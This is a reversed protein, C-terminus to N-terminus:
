ESSFRAIVEEVIERKTSNLSEEFDTIRTEVVNLTAANIPNGNVFSYVGDSGDKGLIMQGLIASGLLSGDDNSSVFYYDEYIMNTSNRILNRAGVRIESVEKKVAVSISDTTMNIASDVEEKTYYDGMAETITDGVKLSIRNDIVTLLENGDKDYINLQGGIILEGIITKANLGYTTTGDGLIIQGLAIECAEWADDTFVISNNVIKVQRPDYTGDELLQKGTYGSGDIVVEQNKSALAAGMSLDRSTQIAEKMKDFEGSKIPYIIDKIYSITNASKSINGLVDDYLSKPDFKNFRNGFTMKLTHDDYNITMNSLFLAAIDNLDLEVNILCGTELQESWEEFEKIFIFNEVDVSFERTPQSTRHLQSLARSYLTRMQEFKEEYTMVDTFVVYDDQYNGEFIYHCLEEYESSTFYSKLNLRSHVSETRVRISEADSEAAKLLTTNREKEQKCEEIRADIEDLTADISKDTSIQDGGSETIAENYEGVLATSNEAVINNRCRTYMTIQEDLRENEMQLNSAETLKSYYDQNLDCYSEFENEVDEQWAVVKSRLSESMWDLYYTFDYIVSTGIPNVAAITINDDGRVSVATYLDDANETIDLSNILDEKTIHINTLRVYNAQDYVSITRDIIDFVFICEFADQMNQIMFSLCNTSVDIDEFTRWREAVVSDVHKITWLPITEVITELLGKNEDLGDTTFRYTGDEIFPVMKMGIESDVSKATIDKYSHYGDFGDEVNTIMFFGINDVFILRRNQVAKYMAYAHANEEKDERIVRNIRFNLESTANFNFIIEEAETDSLGGVVKTLLGDTYVSGPNCLTFQPKELRNLSSYKVIM